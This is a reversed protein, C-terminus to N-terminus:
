SGTYLQLSAWYYPLSYQGNSHLMKLKAARLATAASQKKSLGDYFDDMLQPTAADDVAWLSAVVQHAGARLFAWGLGVLGEGTFWRTGTGTCVSITVLDARLPIETIEHAYLKYSNGQAPSLVVFSDLPILENPESHADIHILRYQGPNSARYAQPIAEKGSIIKEQNAPFHGRVRDMEAPANQLTPFAKDAELPAGLAFLEKKVNGSKAVAPMSRGLLALSSATEIEVDEIWYHPRDGPVILAEFNIQSLIKSTIIVVRSGRPILAEAPQILTKYLQFGGSSDEIARPHDVIESNYTDIQHSIAEHSPLRFWKLQTPTIVWLFSEEDTLSYALAIQNREKLVAQLTKLGFAAQRGRSDRMAQSLIQGRGREAINLGAVPKGQAVLLRVYSDYFPDVDRFSMQYQPPLSEIVTEADAIATQFTRAADAIRGEQWYVNGLERETTLRLLSDKPHSKLIDKFLLEAKSLDKHEMAIIAADYTVKGKAEGGLELASEQKWYDEATSLDHRRLALQTLDNLCAAVADQDKRDKAIALARAFYQEAEPFEKYVLHARGIDILWKEQDGRNKIQDALKEAQEAFSISQRWDGLEAYCNALNGLTRERLLLSGTISLVEDFKAIADSCHGGRLLLYGSGALASAAIFGDDVRALQAAKEFYRQASPPDSSFACRGREFALEANLVLDASSIENQAENLVAAAESARNLSCLAQGQIIRKRAVVAAPVEPPPKDALLSLAEDPLAKRLLVEAKLTRFKWSWAPDSRSQRYGEDAKRLAEDFL